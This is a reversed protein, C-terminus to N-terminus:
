FLAADDAQPWPAGAAMELEPMPEPEDAEDAVMALVGELEAQPPKLAIRQRTEAGVREGQDAMVRLMAPNERALGWIQNCAQHTLGRRCYRCSKSTKPGPECCSHDHDVHVDVGDVPLPQLCLYCLGDQADFMRAWEDIGGHRKMYKARNRERRVPQPHRRRAADRWRQRAKEPNAKAWAKARALRAKRGDDPLNRYYNRSREREHDLSTGYRAKRAANCCKRCHSMRGSLKTRDKGFDDLPKTIGCRPCLKV